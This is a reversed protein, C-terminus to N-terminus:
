LRNKKPNASDATSQQHCLGRDRLFAAISRSAETARFEYLGVVDPEWAALQSKTRGARKGGGHQINWSVIRM